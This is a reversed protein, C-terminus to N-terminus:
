NEFVVDEFWNTGQKILEKEDSATYFIPNIPMEEDDSLDGYVEVLEPKITVEQM